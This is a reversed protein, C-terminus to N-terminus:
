EYENSIYSQRYHLTNDETYFEICQNYTYEKMAWEYYDFGSYKGSETFKKNFHQKAADCLDDAYLGEMDYPLDCYCMVFVNNQFFLAYTYDGDNYYTVKLNKGWYTWIKLSDLGLIEKLEKYDRGLLSTDMTFLKTKNDINFYEGNKSGGFLNIAALWVLVAFILVGITICLVTILKKKKRNKAIYRNIVEASVTEKVAPASKPADVVPTISPVDVTNRKNNVQEKWELYSEVNAFYAACPVMFGCAPCRDENVNIPEKCLPCNM